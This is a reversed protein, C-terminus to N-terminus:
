ELREKYFAHACAKRKAKWDADGKAFLFARGLLPSFVGELTGTKDYISSKTTFLEQAMRPDQIFVLPESQINIVAVPHKSADLTDGEKKSDLNDLLWTFVHPTIKKGMNKVREMAHDGLEQTNGYYFRDYGPFL